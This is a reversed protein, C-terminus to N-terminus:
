ADHERREEATVRQVSYPEIRAPTVLGMHITQEDGKPLPTSRLIGHVRVRKGLWKSLAEQNPQLSGTGFALIVSPPYSRHSLDVFDPKRESHPYHLLHYGEPEAALVGELEVPAGDLSTIRDLVENVNLPNAM